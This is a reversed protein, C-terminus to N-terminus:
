VGLHRALKDLTQLGLEYAGFGKAQDHEDQSSFTMCLSVKTRGGLDQFLASADAHKPGDEGWHLTYDIRELTDHRSIKHHNPFVTGDPGIMDFVWEGGARLDIRQTRCSFGEPGWWLPLAKPDTWAEWVLAAPAAIERELVMTRHAVAVLNDLGAGFGQQYGQEMDEALSTLQVTLKLAAGEGQASLDATVLAASLTVGECGIVETNVSRRNPELALWRIACAIDKQGEVKCLSLEEGGVRPDATLYEVTVAENPASWLARASPSIWAHWLASPPAAVHREFVLTAFRSTM